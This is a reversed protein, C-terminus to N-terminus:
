SAEYNRKGETLPKALVAYLFDDPLSHHTGVLERHKEIADELEKVRSQLRLMEEMCDKGTIRIDMTEGM